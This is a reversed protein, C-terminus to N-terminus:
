VESESMLALTNGESDKFFTMWTEIKNTKAIIHPKQVIQVGRNLLEDYVQNINDVHYYIISSLYDSSEKEPLALLLRVGDCDFFGLQDTKFLLKLGLVNEYFEIARKMDRIPIAIQGVKNIKM